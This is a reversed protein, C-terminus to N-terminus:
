EHFTFSNDDWWGASVVIMSLRLLLWVPILLANAKALIHTDIPLPYFSIHCVIDLSAQCANLATIKGYLCQMGWSTGGPGWTLNPISKKWSWWPFFYRIITSLKLLNGYMKGTADACWKLVMLWRRSSKVASPTGAITIDSLPGGNLPSSNLLNAQSNSKMCVMDDGWKWWDM